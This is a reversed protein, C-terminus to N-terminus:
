QAARRKAELYAEHRQRAASEMLRSTECERLWGLPDRRRCERGRKRAALAKARFHDREYKMREAEDRWQRKARLREVLGADPATM